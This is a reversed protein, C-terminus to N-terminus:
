KVYGCVTLVDIFRINLTIEYNEYIRVNSMKLLCLEVLASLSFSRRIKISRPNSKKSFCFPVNNSSRANTDPSDFFIDSGALFSPFGDVFTIDVSSSKLMRM